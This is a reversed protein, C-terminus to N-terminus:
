TQKKPKGKPKPGATSDPAAKACADQNGRKCSSAYMQNVAAPNKLAIGILACAGDFTTCGDTAWTLAVSDKGALQAIEVAENCGLAFDGKCVGDVLRLAREVDRSSGAQKDVLFSALEKCEWSDGRCAREQHAIAKQPDKAFGDSGDWYRRALEVCGKPNGLQCARNLARIGGERDGTSDGAYGFLLLGTIMCSYPGGQDCGQKALTVAAQKRPSTAPQGKAASWELIARSGCGDAFGGDCAKKYFSSRTEVDAGIWSGYTFCSEASGKECQVKCDDHDRPACLHAAAASTRTCIGNAFAYGERCPNEPPPPADEPKSEAQAPTALGIPQLQLSLPSRCEGPPAAADPDQSRCSELSGDTSQAGKETESSASAGVKFLEAVAAARGISGTAMAFAGLSANQIFHTAGDCDGVLAERRAKGVTTWKLGAFVLAVDISRGSKLEVGVKGASLPLNVGLEDQNKIQVVTAKKSVATYDYTGDIHCTPLVRLSKCDYSVVVLGNKGKMGVELAVRANADLDVVLPTALKPEGTCATAAAGTGLADASTLDKPRVVNGAQGGCAVLLTFLISSRAIHM